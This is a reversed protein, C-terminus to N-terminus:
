IELTFSVEGNEQKRCRLRGLPTAVETVGAEEFFGALRTEYHQLLAQTERLQRRLKVYDQLLNQFQLSDVTLGVSATPAGALSQVHILPTPYLNSTLDFACNCDVVSTVQPIRARIKPCSMPNGRLRSKLFLSPDANLCRQFLENVAEPGHELHGLTHILVQTEDRSVQLTRNLNDVVAKLAPCRAMLHQFQPDRDLDYPHEPAPPRPPVPHAEAEGSPPAVAPAAPLGVAQLRQVVRYIQSKSVRSIAGLLALQDEYPQGDPQLFLARKGTRRHLGLPLKILNGLSGPKVTAQKPFVEVTVEPPLPLLQAALLDGCKKAVGAPLPSELFIWVHRGKFGSDELYAPLEQAAALDLLRCATQHVKAMLAEWARQSTIARQVAFKALDLDFAIFNVTNDLRVPYVGVTHNGLIHNEVVKPTLPEQIPTYGSEGTPSVWQRAYVGERGGFLGLFAVLHHAQPLLQGAPPPETPPEAPEELFKLHQLLDQFLPNGTRELGAHYVQSAKVFEGAEELARGLEVYAQPERPRRKVLAGWVQAAKLPQGQDLHIEALRRYTELREPDDRIALNLELIVEEVLGLEELLEAWALHLAPDAISKTDRILARELAEQRRGETLLQKVLGLLAPETM